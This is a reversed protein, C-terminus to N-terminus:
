AVGIAAQAGLRASTIAAADVVGQVVRDLDIEAQRLYSVGIAGVCGSADMVPAAVCQIGSLVAGDDLAYGQERVQTLKKTQRATPAYALQVMGVATVAAPLRAGIFSALRVGLDPPDEKAIYVVDAGDLVAFHATVRLDDTLRRLQDSAARAPSMTRVYSSGVEFSRLGISYRGSSDCEVFDFEKLARLLMVASSKPVSLQAAVEKLALPRDSHALLDLMQLARGVSRNGVESM